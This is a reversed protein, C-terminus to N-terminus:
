PRRWHSHTASPGQWITLFGLPGPPVVTVNFSYAGAISPISCTPNSLIPFNRTAGGALSPPGFAGSFSSGARTDVMRCPTMAVFVLSGTPTAAQPVMEGASGRLIVSRAASEAEVRSPQWYLPAPWNRLPVSDGASQANLSVAFLVALFTGWFKNM